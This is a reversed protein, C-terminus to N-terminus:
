EHVSGEIIHHTAAPAEGSAARRMAIQQQLRSPQPQRPQRAKQDREASLRLQDYKARLKVASVFLLRALPQCCVIDDDTFFEPKIARIKPM